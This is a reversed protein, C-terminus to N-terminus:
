DLPKKFPLALFFTTGTTESSEFWVKGGLYQETFLKISYTGIGRGVGKTSFSRQFIQLQVDRPMEISNHVTFIVGSEDAECGLKVESGTGSAELANKLLNSIVRGLITKDTVITASSFNPDIFIRKDKAVASVAFVAVISGIVSVPNVSQLNLQLSGTEAALLQRQSQIENVLQESGNYILNLFFEQDEEDDEEQMLQSANLVNGATNLIDHFFTRELAARRKEHSIDKLSFVTFQKEGLTIPTAWVQLDFATGSKSLIHCERISQRGGQAELIANVAGCERCFETTGCGGDSETAHICDLLEGPRKGLVDAETVGSLLEYLRANAYIIQRHQNLITLIDSIGDLVHNKDLDRTVFHAQSKLEPLTAREAPAYETPLHINM